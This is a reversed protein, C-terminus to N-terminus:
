CSTTSRTSTARGRHVRGDPFWDIWLALAVGIVSAVLGIGIMRGIPHKEGEIRPDEEPAAAPAVPRTESDRESDTM